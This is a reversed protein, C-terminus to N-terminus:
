RASRGREARRRGAAGAARARGAPSLRERGATSGQAAPSRAVSGRMAEDRQQRALVQDFVSGFVKLRHLERPSWTREARISSFGVAGAVRGEVSLPIFVASKTGITRFAIRDVENPIEGPTSFLVVDGALLRELSEPWRPGTRSPRKSRTTGPAAGSSPTSSSATPRLNQLVLMPGPWARRRDKRRRTRIADSIEIPRCTSSSSPCSRSSASSSSRGNSSRANRRRPAAASASTSFPPSSSAGTRPRSRGCGVQVVIASGDKRRGALERSPIRRRGGPRRM